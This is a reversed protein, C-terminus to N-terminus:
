IRCHERAWVPCICCWFGEHSLTDVIVKFSKVSECRCSEKKIEVTHAAFM